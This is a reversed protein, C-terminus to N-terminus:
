PMWTLPATYLGTDYFAVIVVTFVVSLSILDVRGELTKLTVLQTTNTSKSPTLITVCVEISPRESKSIDAM